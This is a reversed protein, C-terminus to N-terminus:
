PPFRSRLQNIATVWINPMTSVLLYYLRIMHLVFLCRDILIQKNALLSRQDCELHVIPQSIVQVLVDQQGRGMGIKPKGAGEEAQGDNGSHDDVRRFHEEVGGDSRCIQAQEVVFHDHLQGRM